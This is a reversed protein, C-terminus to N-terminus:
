PTGGLSKQGRGLIIIAVGGIMGTIAGLPLRGGTYTRCIADASVVMMAGLIMALPIVKRCDNGVLFRCIHPVILGVLAVPGAVVTAAGALLLVIISGALFIWRINIGLGIASDNGLSLVTWQPALAMAAIMAVAVFPTVIAVQSWITNSLGGVAFFLLANRLQMQLVVAQTVAGLLISVIIGALAMHIPAKNRPSLMTLLYVMGAGVGSGAFSFGIAGFLTLDPITAVGVALLLSGGSSLGMLSPSALPNQTMSQMIVGAVALSAGILMGIVVRPLRMQVIIIHDISSSEYASLSRWAQEYAVDHPGMCTSAAVVAVIGVLALATVIPWPLLPQGSPKM